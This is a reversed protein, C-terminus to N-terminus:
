MTGAVTHLAYAYFILWQSGNEDSETSVSLGCGPVADRADDYSVEASRNHLVVRCLAGGVYTEHLNAFHREAHTSSMMDLYGHDWFM